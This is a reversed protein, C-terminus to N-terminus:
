EKGYTDTYYQDFSKGGVETCNIGGQWLEISQEREMELAQKYLDIGHKEIPFGKKVLENILWEVATQKKEQTM